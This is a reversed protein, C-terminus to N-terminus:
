CDINAVPTDRMMTAEVEMHSGLKRALPQTEMPLQQHHTALPAEIVETMVILTDEVAEVDTMVVVAATDTMVDEVAMAILEALPTDMTAIEATGVIVIMEATDVIIMAAEVMAEAEAVATTIVITTADQLPDEAM